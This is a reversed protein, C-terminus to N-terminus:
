YCSKNEFWLCSLYKDLTEIKLKRRGKIFSSINQIPIQSLESFEKMGMKQITDKLAEEVGDGFHEIAAMLSERAFDLNKMKESIFEDYSKSRRAM